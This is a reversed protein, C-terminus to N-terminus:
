TDITAQEQEAPVTWDLQVETVTPPAPPEIVIIQPGFVAVHTKNKTAREKAHAIAHQEKSFYGVVNRSDSQHMTIFVQQTQLDIKSVKKINRTSKTM